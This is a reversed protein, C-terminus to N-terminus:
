AYIYKKTNITINQQNHTQTIMNGFLVPMLCYLVKFTLPSSINLGYQLFGWSIKRKTILYHFCKFSGCNICVQAMTSFHTLKHFVYKFMVPNDRKIIAIIMNGLHSISDEVICRFIKITNHAVIEDIILKWNIDLHSISHKVIKCIKEINNNKIADLIAHEVIPSSEKRESSMVRDKKLGYPLNLLKNYDDPFDFLTDPLTHHHFWSM